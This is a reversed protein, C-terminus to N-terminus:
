KEVVRPMRPFKPGYKLRLNKEQAEQAKAQEDRETMLVSMKSLLDRLPVMECGVCVDVETEGDYNGGLQINLRHWGTPWRTPEGNKAEQAHETGCMDCVLIHTKTIETTTSM